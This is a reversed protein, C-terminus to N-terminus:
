KFSWQIELKRQMHETIYQQIQDPKYFSINFQARAVGTSTKRSFLILFTVNFLKSICLKIM